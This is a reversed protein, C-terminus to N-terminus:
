LLSKDRAEEPNQGILPSLPQPLPDKALLGVGPHPLFQTEQPCQDKQRLKRPTPIVPTNDGHRAEHIKLFEKIATHAPVLTSLTKLTVAAVPLQPIALSPQSHHHGYTPCSPDTLLPMQRWAQRHTQDRLDVLNSSVVPGQLSDELWRWCLYCM